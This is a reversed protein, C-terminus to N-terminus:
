WSRYAEDDVTVDSGKLRGLGITQGADLAVTRGIDKGSRVVFEFRM